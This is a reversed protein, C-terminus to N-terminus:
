PRSSRWARRATYPSTRASPERVVAARRPLSRRSQRRDRRDGRDRRALVWQAAGRRAAVVAVSAVIEV